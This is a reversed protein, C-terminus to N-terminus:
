PVFRGPKKWWGQRYAWYFIGARVYTELCIVVFIWKIDAACQLLIYMPIIRLCWLGFTNIYLSVKAMGAGRFAGDLVFLFILPVQSVGVAMLYWSAVKVVILNQSFILAFPEAFILMLVGLVGLLSGAVKLTTHIYDQAVQVQNAGLNQGVLVMCAITFGLGPMFSFTEVRLGVQMGALIADGYTAVFKSVLITSFLSLLREFGSPWGVHWTRKFFKWDFTWRFKLPTNKCAIVVFLVGMELFAVIVNAWAAGAIDLRMFGYDGFILAKNLFLCLLSMLTKILLPTLTDSLSALAAVMVNKVFMAPMAFIFVQLYEQALVSAKESVGMWAIFFKIGGLGLVCALACFASAGMLISSYGISLNQTDQAGVLRSLTANTGIFFIANISYFLLLYQLGIGMAVIHTDSLKGMFVISIALVFIELFNNSASPLALMLIRKLKEM